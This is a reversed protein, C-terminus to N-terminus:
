EGRPAKLERRLSRIQDQAILALKSRLIPNGDFWGQPELFALHAEVLLAGPLPQYRRVIIYGGGGEYDHMTGVDGKLPKWFNAAPGPGQFAPDTRLAIIWRDPSRTAMIHSTAEVHLRDLLNAMTHVYGERPGEPSPPEIGRERLEETKVERGEFRMNGAEIAEHEGPVIAEPDLEDLNAHIVFWLDMRRIIAGDRAKLDDLKLIFPATISDRLLARARAKSGAVAELAKAQATADPAEDFAVPPLGVAIGGLSWGPRAEGENPTISKLVTNGVHSTSEQQAPVGSLVCLWVLWPIM